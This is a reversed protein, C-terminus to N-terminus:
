AHQIIEYKREGRNYGTKVAKADVEQESTLIDVNKDVIISLAAILYWYFYYLGHSGLGVGLRVILSILLGMTLKYLFDNQLSLSELKRKSLFLNLFVQRILFIWAITGTIGLDGVLEGYLNHSMMTFGFYKGRAKMYCGPGVGFPHGKLIMEVGHNFGKLRGIISSKTIRSGTDVFTASFVVIIIATVGVVIIYKLQNKILAITVCCFMLFGIVGGRSGSGILVILFIIVPILGIAKMATKRITLFLFIAIPIMQNMNNAAAVHGSLIGVDGIYNVGYGEQVGGTGTLFGYFPEYALYSFLVVFFWVFIKLDKNDKIGGLVLIFIIIVKIFDFVTFEWSFTRDIALIYSIIISAIFLAFYKNVLNYHPSLIIFTRKEALIRITSALGVITEARLEFLLPYYHNLKSLHLILYSIPMYVPRYIGM